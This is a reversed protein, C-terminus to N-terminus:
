LASNRYEVTGDPRQVKIIQGADIASQLQRQFAADTQATEEGAIWQGTFESADAGITALSPGGFLRLVFLIAFVALAAYIIRTM